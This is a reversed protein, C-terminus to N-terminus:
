WVSLQATKSKSLQEINVKSTLSCSSSDKLEGTFFNIDSHIWLGSQDSLSANLFNIEGIVENKNSNTDENESNQITLKSKGYLNIKLSDIHQANYYLSSNGLMTIQKIQYNIFTIQKKISDINSNNLILTSGDMVILNRISDDSFTIKRDTGNEIKVRWGSEVKLKTFSDLKLEFMNNEKDALVSKFHLQIVVIFILVLGFLSTLIINSTKM